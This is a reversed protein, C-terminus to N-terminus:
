QTHAITLIYSSYRETTGTTRRILGPSSTSNLSTRRRSNHLLTIYSNVVVYTHTIPIFLCGGLCSDIKCTKHSQKIAFQVITNLFIYSIVWFWMNKDNVVFLRSSSIDMKYKLLTIYDFNNFQFKNYVHQLNYLIWLLIIVVGRMVELLLHKWM